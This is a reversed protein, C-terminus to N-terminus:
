DDLQQGDRIHSREPAELAKMPPLQKPIELTEGKAVREARLQRMKEKIEKAWNRAKRMHFPCTFYPCMLASRHLPSNWDVFRSMTGLHGLKSHAEEKGKAKMKFIDDGVVAFALSKCTLALLILDLYSLQDLIMLVIDPVLGTIQSMAYVLPTPPSNNNKFTASVIGTPLKRSNELM